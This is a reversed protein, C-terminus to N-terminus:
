ETYSILETVYYSLVSTRAELEACRLAKFKLRKLKYISAFDLQKQSNMWYLISAESKLLIGTYSDSEPQTPM